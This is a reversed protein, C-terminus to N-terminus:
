ARRRRAAALGVLGLGLLGLVAPEPVQSSGGGASGLWISNGRKDINGVHLALYLNNWQ